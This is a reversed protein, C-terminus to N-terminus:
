QPLVTVTVQNKSEVEESRAKVFYRDDESTWESLVVGFQLERASSLSGSIAARPDAFFRILITERPKLLLLSEPVTDSGATAEMVKRIPKGGASDQSSLDIGLQRRRLKGQEHVTGDNRAIPLYYPEPGANRLLLEVIIRQGLVVTRPEVSRITLELPLPYKPKPKLGPMWGGEDGPFGISGKASPLPGTLDVVRLPAEGPQAGLLAASLIAMACVAWLRLVERATLTRHMM